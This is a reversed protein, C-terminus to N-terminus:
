FLLLVLSWRFRFFFRRCGVVVLWGVLWVCCCCFGVVVVVVVVLEMGLTGMEKQTGQKPISKLSCGTEPAACRRRCRRSREHSLCSRIVKPNCWEERPCVIALALTHPAHSQVKRRRDPVRWCGLRLEEAEIFFLGAPRPRVTEGVDPRLLPDLPASTSLGGTTGDRSGGTGSIASCNTSTKERTAFYSFSISLISSKTRMPARTLGASLSAQRRQTM